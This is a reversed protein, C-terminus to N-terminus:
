AAKDATFPCDVGIAWWNDVRGVHRASPIWFEVGGRCAARFANAVVDVLRWGEDTGTNAPIFLLARAAGETRRLQKTEVGLEILDARGPLVAFRAWKGGTPLPTANDYVTSLGEPTAVSNIFLSRADVHIENLSFVGSRPSLAAPPVEDFDYQFPQIVRTVWSEGSRWVPMTYAQGYRIPDFHKGSLFELLADATSNLEGDGVEVPCHLEIVGSGSIRYANATGFELLECGDFDVSISCRSKSPETAAPPLDINAAQVTLGLGARAIDVLLSEVARHATQWPGYQLFLEFPVYTQVGSELIFLLDGTPPSTDPTNKLWHLVGNEDRYRARIVGDGDDRALVRRTVGNEDIFPITWVEAM